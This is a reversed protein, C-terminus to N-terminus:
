ASAQRDAGVHDMVWLSFALRRQAEDREWGPVGKVMADLEVLGDLASVLEPVSWLRAQDRLREMRYESAVGMAKGIASLREGQSLGDATEILERVRRHLVALLVPEPTGELLRDLSELARETQRLGVADTFAWVSGPVAEATLAAVDDSTIPATGRYLALKDLEMSALRTQQTREADGETVFGGVREALAKAAGPGLHLGRDRAEAEVWGALAGAKPAKFQRVAGGAAAIADALRKPAPGRVAGDAAGLVVLANGPAVLTLAELLADRDDTRVVLSGANSVEALTGGGFMVPTALRVRLESIQASAGNREGRLRWREMRDGLGSTLANEFRDVAREISLEDDGWFFALPVPSVAENRAPSTM